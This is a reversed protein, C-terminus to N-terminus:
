QAGGQAKAIAARATSVAAAFGVAARERPGDWIRVMETLAALLEANQARLKAIEAAPDAMGECANVCAVIRAANANAPMRVFAPISSIDQCSEPNVNAVIRGALGGAMIMPWGDKPDDHVVWPGPTHAANTDNSM